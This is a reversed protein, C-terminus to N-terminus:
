YLKQFYRYELFKSLVQIDELTAAIYFVSYFKHPLLSVISFWDRGRWRDRATPSQKGTNDDGSTLSRHSVWVFLLVTSSVFLALNAAHQLAKTV